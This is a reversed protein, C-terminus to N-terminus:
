LAPKAAVIATMGGLEAAQRRRVSVKRGARREPWRRAAHEHQGAGM